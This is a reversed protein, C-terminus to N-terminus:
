PALGRVLAWGVGAVIIAVAGCLMSRILINIRSHVDEGMTKIQRGLDEMARRMDAEFTEARRVREICFAEHADLRQNARGAEARAAHASMRDPM